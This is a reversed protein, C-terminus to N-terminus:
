PKAPGSGEPKADATEDVDSGFTPVNKTAVRHGAHDEEHLKGIAEAVSKLYAEGSTWGCEKCVTKWMATGMEQLPTKPPFEGWDAPLTRM